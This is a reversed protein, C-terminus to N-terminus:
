RGGARRQRRGTSCDGLVFEGALDTELGSPKRPGGPEVALAAIVGAEDGLGLKIEVIRLFEADGDSREETEVGRVPGQGVGVQAFGVQQQVARQAFTFPLNAESDVPHEPADRFRAIQDIDDILGVEDFIGVLFDFQALRHGM